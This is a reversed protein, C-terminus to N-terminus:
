WHMGYQMAGTFSLAEPFLIPFYNSPVNELQVDCDMRVGRSGQTNRERKMNQYPLASM